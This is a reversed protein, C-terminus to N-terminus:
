CYYNDSVKKAKYMASYTNYWISKQAEKYVLVHAVSDYTLTWEPSFSPLCEVGFAAEKPMLLLAKESNYFVWQSYTKMWEETESDMYFLKDQALTTVTFITAFLSLVIKRM